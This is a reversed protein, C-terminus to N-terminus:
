LTESFHKIEDEPNAERNKPNGNSRLIRHAAEDTVICLGSFSDSMQRVLEVAEQYSLGSAACKEFSVVSWRPADFESQPSNKPFDEKM